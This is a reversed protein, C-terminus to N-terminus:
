RPSKANSCRCRGGKMLFPWLLLLCLMIQQLVALDPCYWVMAFFVLVACSAELFGSLKNKGTKTHEVLKGAAWFYLAIKLYFLMMWTSIHLADLRRFVSLAGLRAVTYASQSHGQAQPGLVLEAALVLVFDILFLVSPLVAAKAACHQKQNNESALVPLLLYEPCLAARLLMTHPVGAETVPQCTLNEVRMKDSVAILLIVLSVASFVLVLQATRGLTGKSMSQGYAAVALSLTLFWFLPLHSGLVFAYFRQCHMLEVAASFLLSVAFVRCFAKSKAAATTRKGYFFLMLWLLPFLLLESLLVSQATRAFILSQFPRIFSGVLVSALLIPLLEAGKPKNQIM